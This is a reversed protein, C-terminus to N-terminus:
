SLTGLADDICHRPMRQDALGGHHQDALARLRQAQRDGDDFAKGKDLWRQCGQPPIGKVAQLDAVRHQQGLAMMRGQIRIYAGQNNLDVIADHGGVDLQRQHVEVMIIMGDPQHTRSAQGLLIHALNREVGQISLVIEIM